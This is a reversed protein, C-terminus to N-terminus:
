RKKNLGPVFSFRGFGKVPCVIAFVFWCVSSIVIVGANM